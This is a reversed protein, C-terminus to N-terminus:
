LKIEEALKGSSRSPLCVGQFKSDCVETDKFIGIFVLLKLNRSVWGVTENTITGKSVLECSLGTLAASQLLFLSVKVFAPKSKVLTLGEM